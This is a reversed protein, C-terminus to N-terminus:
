TKLTKFTAATTQGIQALQHTQKALLQVMREASGAFRTQDAAMRKFQGTMSKYVQDVKTGLVELKITMEEQKTIMEKMMRTKPSCCEQLGEMKIMMEQLERTKPPSVAMSRRPRELESIFVGALKTETPALEEASCPAGARRVSGSYTLELTGNLDRIARKFRAAHLPLMGVADYLARVDGEELDRLFTMDDGGQARIASSYRHLGLAALWEELTQEGSAAAAAAAATEVDYVLDIREREPSGLPSRPPSTAPSLPKVGRVYVLVSPSALTRGIGNSEESGSGPHHGGPEPESSAMMEHSALRRAEMQMTSFVRRVLVRAAEHVRAIWRVRRRVTGM